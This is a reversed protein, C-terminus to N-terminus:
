QVLVKQRILEGKDNRMEWVFVGQGLPIDKRSNGVPVSIRENKWERGQLDYIRLRLNEQKASNIQLTLVRNSVSVAKVDFNRATTYTIKRTALYEVKGDFDTQSLRYYSVGTLPSADTFSYSKLASSNGAGRM